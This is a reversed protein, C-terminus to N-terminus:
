TLRSILDIILAIITLAAVPIGLWAAWKSRRENARIRAAARERDVTTEEIRWQEIDTIRTHVDDVLGRMESEVEDIARRLERATDAMYRGVTKLDDRIQGLERCVLEYVGDSDRRGAGPKRRESPSNRNRDNAPM